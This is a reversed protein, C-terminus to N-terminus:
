MTMAMEMMPKSLTGMIKEYPYRGHPDYEAGHTNGHTHQPEGHPYDGHTYKQGHTHTQIGRHSNEQGHPQPQPQSQLHNVIETNIANELLPTEDMAKEGDSWRLSTGDEAMMDNEAEPTVHKPKKSWKKVTSADAPSAKMRKFNKMMEPTPLPVEFDELPPEMGRPCFMMQEDHMYFM